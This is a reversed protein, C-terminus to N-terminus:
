ITSSTLREAEVASPWSARILVLDTVQQSNLGDTEIVLGPLDLGEMTGEDADGAAITPEMEAQTYGLLRGRTLVRRRREDTGIRLRVV